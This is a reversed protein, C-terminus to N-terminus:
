EKTMEWESGQTFRCWIFTFAGPKKPVHLVLLTFLMQFGFWGCTSSVCLSIPFTFTCLVFVLTAPMCGNVQRQDDGWNQVLFLSPTCFFPVLPFLLKAYSPFHTCPIPKLPLSPMEVLSLVVRVLMSSFWGTEKLCHVFLSSIFFDLLLWRVMVCDRRMHGSLHYYKISRAIIWKKLFVIGRLYMEWCSEWFIGICLLAWWM